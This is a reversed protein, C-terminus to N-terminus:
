LKGSSDTVTLSGDVVRNLWGNDCYSIVQSKLESRSYYRALRRGVDNNNLDMTRDVGDPTEAEHATAFAAAKSEGIDNAMLANWYTHRFADGNGLYLTDAEYLSSATNSATAADAYAVVAEGPYLTMIALETSNLSQGFVNYSRASYIETNKENIKQVIMEKAYDATLEKNNNQAESLIDLFDNYELLHGEAKIISDYDQQSIQVSQNNVNSEAFVVGNSITTAILTAITVKMITSKMEFGGM